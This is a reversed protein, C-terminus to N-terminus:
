QITDLHRSKSFSVNQKVYSKKMGHLANKANKLHDLEKKVLGKKVALVDTFRKNLEHFNTLGKEVEKWLVDKRLVEPSAVEGLKQDLSSLEDILNEQSSQLAEIPYPTSFDLSLENLRKQNHLLKDFKQLMEQIITKADKM